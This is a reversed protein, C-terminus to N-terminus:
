LKKKERLTICNTTRWFSRFKASTENLFNLLNMKRDVFIGIENMDYFKPRHTNAWENRRSSMDNIHKWLGFKTWHYKQGYSAARMSRNFQDTCRARWWM